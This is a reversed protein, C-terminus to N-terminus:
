ESRWAGYIICWDDLCDEFSYIEDVYSQEYKNCMANYWHPWYVKRIEEESLTLTINDIENYSFYRM